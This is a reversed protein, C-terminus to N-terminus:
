LATFYIIYESLYGRTHHKCKVEDLFGINTNYYIKYQNVLVIFVVVCAISLLFLALKINRMFTPKKQMMISEKLEM